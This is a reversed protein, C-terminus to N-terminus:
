HSPNVRFFYSKRENGMKRKGNMFFEIRKKNRWRPPGYVVILDGNADAACSITNSCSKIKPLSAYIEKDHDPGGDITHRLRSISGVVLSVVLEM